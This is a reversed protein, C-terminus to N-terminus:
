VSAAVTGTELLLFLTIMRISRRLAALQVHEGDSHAHTLEGAGTTLVSLDPHLNAFLRADCSVTWGQVPEGEPWMDLARMAAIGNRMSPSDPDGDHAANHLKDYTTTQTATVGPGSAVQLYQELGRQCADRMRAMVQEMPHTPLFGQGGELVLEGDVEDDPLVLTLGPWEAREASLARVVYAMKTIACDNELIAGMHGTSGYVRVEIGADTETIEYHVEVKPKGTEPDTVKTKDGYVATYEEVAATVVADLGDSEVGEGSVLFPIEGNIRSPHEGFAQLMGHCTQVPRQPFLPHASESKIKAGEEEMALVCFAVAELKSCAKTDLVTKYWVAGRNAPHLKNAACELVMISDYLRRVDADMAVSLSGNGGTEEDTVFMFTVSHNLDVGEEQRLDRLLRACAVMSAIAGKDDCAGRGYVADGKAAPPFYPKVVDIHANVATNRGATTDHEAGALAYLLNRRGSYADEFSLGEPNEPSQTYYLKSFHPSDQIGPDIPRYEAVGGVDSLETEIMDYVAQENAATLAVDARPSTDVQCIRVIFDSLWSRFEESETRRRLSGALDQLRSM